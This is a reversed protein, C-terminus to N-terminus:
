KITKQRELLHLHYLLIKGETWRRVRHLRRVHNPLAFLGFSLNGLHALIQEVRGRLRRHVRLGDPRQELQEIAALRDPHRARRATGRGPKRRAAILRGGAVRTAQYMATADYSADARIVVGSLPQRELLRTMVSAESQNMPTLAFADIAGSHDALLHLRYGRAFGGPVHGLAADPDHSFGGVCLPKGDIVKQDTRPLQHRLLRSLQQLQEDLTALRKMLQSYSPFRIRRYCIPWHRRQLAQRPSLQHLVGFAYILLIVADSYCCRPTRTLTPDDHLIRYLRKLLQSDV